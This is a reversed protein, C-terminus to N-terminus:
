PINVDEKNLNNPSRITVNLDVCLATNVKSVNVAEEVFNAKDRLSASHDVGGKTEKEHIGQTHVPTRPSEDDDGLKLPSPKTPDIHSSSQKFSPPRFNVIAEYSNMLSKQQNSENQSADNIDGLISSIINDTAISRSSNDYNKELSVQSSIVDVSDFNHPSGTTNLDDPPPTDVKSVNVFEEFLNAKERLSDSNDLFESTEKAHSGQLHVLTRASDDDDGLQTIEVENYSDNSDEPQRSSSIAGAESESNDAVNVDDQDDHPDNGFQIKDSPVGLLQQISDLDVKVSRSGVQIVM